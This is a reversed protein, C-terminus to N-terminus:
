PLFELTWATGDSEISATVEETEGVLNWSKIALISASGTLKFKAASDELRTYLPARTNLTANSPMTGTVDGSMKANEIKITGGTITITKGGGLDVIGGDPQIMTM